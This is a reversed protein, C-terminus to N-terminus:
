RLSPAKSIEPSSSFTSRSIFSPPAFLGLVVGQARDFSISLEPIAAQLKDLFARSEAADKANAILRTIELVRTTLASYKSDLVVKILEILNDESLASLYTQLEEVTMQNLTVLDVQFSSEGANAPTGQNQASLVSTGLLFGCLIWRLFLNKM